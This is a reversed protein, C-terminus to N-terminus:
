LGDEIRRKIEKVIEMQDDSSLDATKQLIYIAIDLGMDFAEYIDNETYYREDYLFLM